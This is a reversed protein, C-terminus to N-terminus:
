KSGVSLIDNIPTLSNPRKTSKFFRNNLQDVKEDLLKFFNFKNAPYFYLSEWKSDKQLALDNLQKLRTEIKLHAIEKQQDKPYHETKL